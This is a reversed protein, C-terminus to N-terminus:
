GIYLFDKEWGRFLCALKRGIMRTDVDVIDDLDFDGMVVVDLGSVSVCRALM